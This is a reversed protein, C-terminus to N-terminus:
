VESTLYKGLARGVRIQRRVDSTESSVSNTPRLRGGRGRVARGRPYDRATTAVRRYGGVVGQPCTMRHLPELLVLHPRGRGSSPAVRTRRADSTATKSSVILATSGAAGAAATSTSQDSSNGVVPVTVMGCPVVATRSAFRFRVPRRMSPVTTHPSRFMRIFTRQIITSPVKRQPVFASGNVFRSVM